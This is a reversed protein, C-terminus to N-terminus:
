CAIRTAKTILWFAKRGTLLAYGVPIIPKLVPLPLHTGRHSLGQQGLLSEWRYSSYCHLVAQNSSSAVNQWGQMMLNANPLFGTYIIQLITDELCQLCHCGSMATKM